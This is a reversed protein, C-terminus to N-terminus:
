SIAKKLLEVQKDNKGPCRRVKYVTEVTTERFVKQIELCEYYDPYEKECIDLFEDYLDQYKEKIFKDDETDEVEPWFEKADEPPEFQELHVLWHFSNAIDM